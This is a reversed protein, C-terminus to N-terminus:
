LAGRQMLTAIETRLRGEERILKQATDGRGRREKVLALEVLARHRRRTARYAGFGRSLLIGFHSFGRAFITALHVLEKQDRVLGGIENSLQRLVVRRESAVLAGILIFWGLFFFWTLVITMLGGAGGLYSPLANHISHLLMAMFFGFCPWLLKRVPGKSVVVMGWGLGTMSTFLAHSLGGFITRLVTLTVFGAAGGEAGAQGIYLTDETLTFGLGIIGGYVVGDLPGDFEHFILHGLVFVVIVGFGKFSEEFIPAFFTASIADLAESGAVASRALEAAIGTAIGGGLTAGIAGWLFCICLIWWPEPEYRDVWRVFLVYMLVLPSIVVLAALYTM